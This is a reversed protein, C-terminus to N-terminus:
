WQVYYDTVGASCGSDLVICTGKSGEFTTGQEMDSAAVVYYGEDTRYFGENDVNWQDTQYHYLVNSSYYTETRGDYYNVGSQPTLGDSNISASYVPAAYSTDEIWSYDEVPVVNEQYLIENKQEEIKQIIGDYEEILKKIERVDRSNKIKEAIETLQEKQEDTVYEANEGEIIKTDCDSYNSKYNQLDEWWAEASDYEDETYWSNLIMLSQENEQFDSELKANEEALQRNEICTDQYKQDLASYINISVISEIAIICLFLIIIAFIKRKPM